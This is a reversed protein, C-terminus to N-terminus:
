TDADSKKNGGHWAKIVPKGPSIDCLGPISLLFSISGSSVAAVPEWPVAAMLSCGAAASSIDSVHRLPPHERCSGLLRVPFEPLLAVSGEKVAPGPTAPKSWFTWCSSTSIRCVDRCCCASSSFRALLM